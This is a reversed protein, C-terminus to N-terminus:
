AGYPNFDTDYGTGGAFATAEAMAAPLVPYAFTLALADGEDPSPLGRRKMDEKAELLIATSGTRETLSYQVSTLDGILGPHDDIAGHELWDRMGGWMEARKNAYHNRDGAAARDAKAGFQIEMVGRVGIQALRDVVGGGVGGGDVFIADARVQNAHEAVAAAVYMTNARHLRVPPWSRADRGKRFRIVTADDGFRAVDVGMVMADHIHHEAQRAMAAVVLDRGILQQPSAPTLGAINRVMRDATHDTMLPLQGEYYGPPLNRLNEAAPDLGSPQRFLDIGRAKLAEPPRSFVERYLWNTLEPANCDALIGHWAPGGDIMKPYRGTRSACYEVVAFELLDLENLWFATVEYGRLIDEVRNDGIAVFEVILEVREGLFDFTVRHTAPGGVAGTWEGAEKPVRDWWSPITTSWLQRYTQRVACIKFRRVGDRPSRKQMAALFIIKTAVTTTKGSGVPGNLIQFLRMAKMFEIAVPGPPAWDLDIKAPQEM